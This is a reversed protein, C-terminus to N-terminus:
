TPWRKRAKALEEQTIRGHKAEYDALFAALHRRRAAEALDETIQASLTRRAKRAATAAERLVAEDVTISIKRARAKRPPSRPKRSTSRASSSLM